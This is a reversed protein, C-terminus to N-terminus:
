RTPPIIYVDLTAVGRVRDLVRHTLTIQTVITNPTSLQAARDRCRPDDLRGNEHLCLALLGGDRLSQPTVWPALDPDLELFGSPHDEAYFAAANSFYKSGGVTVLKRGTAHHWLDEAAEAAERLPMQWSADTPRYLLRVTVPASLLSVVTGVGVARSTWQVLRRPDAGSILSMVLLPALPFTGILMAASLQVGFFLGFCITLVSPLVVLAALLRTDPRTMVALGPRRTLWILLPIVLQVAATAFLVKGDLVVRGPLSMGTTSLAYRLPPAHNVVLWWLHPLVLVVGVAMSTWPSASRWYLRANAHLLSAAFCTLVLIVAYYKSLMAAGILAGFLFSDRTRRSELARILLFLTWPWISLFISNANYKFCNFTYFPTCLLLLWAAQRTAGSAFRGILHWAGLLGVVSNLVALLVFAWDETPFVQFWLGAIWAWFPPHQHYGLQFERGWVYAETVDDNLVMGTHSTVGYTLWAATFLVAIAAIALPGPSIDAGTAADQGSIAVLPAAMDTGGGLEASLDRDLWEPINPHQYEPWGSGVLLM